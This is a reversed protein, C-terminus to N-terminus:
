LLGLSICAWLLSHQEIQSTGAVIAYSHPKLIQVFAHKSKRFKITPDALRESYAAAM